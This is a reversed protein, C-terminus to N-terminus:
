KTQFAVQWLLEFAEYDRQLNDFFSQSLRWWSHEMSKEIMKKKKHCKGTSSIGLAEVDSLGIKSLTVQGKIWSSGFGM